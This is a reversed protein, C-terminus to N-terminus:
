QNHHRRSDSLIKFEDRAATATFAVSVRTMTHITTFTDFVKQVRQVTPEAYEFFYRLIDIM